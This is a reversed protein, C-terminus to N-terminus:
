RIRRVLQGNRWLCSRCGARRDTQHLSHRRFAPHHCHQPTRPQPSPLHRQSREGSRLVLSLPVLLQLLRICRYGDKDSYNQLSSRLYGSTDSHKASGLPTHSSPSKSLRSSTRVSTVASPTTGLSGKTKSLCSTIYSTVNPPGSFVQLIFTTPRTADSKPTAVM